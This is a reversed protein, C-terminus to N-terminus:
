PLSLAGTSSTPSRFVTSLAYRAGASEYDEGPYLMWRIVLPEPGAYSVQRDVEPM